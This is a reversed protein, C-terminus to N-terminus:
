ARPGARRTELRHMFQDYHRFCSSKLQPLSRQAAKATKWGFLPQMWAYKQRLQPEELKGQLETALDRAEAILDPREPYFADYWNQIFTVCAARARESDDMSRLCRIHSKISRLLAEKKRDSNGIYSVRSSPTIRYFVGTGPVFRTGNSAKLVRCFYEGDDDFCLTTDFSGAAEILERSALWTAPQMHLNLSMKRVLWEAPALDECLANQVFRAKRTRFFFPAWSTSLLKWKDEAGDVTALQREIKDPALIDDAALIQVYDGSCTEIALNQAAAVGHNKGASVVQVGASAFGRAVPATADTSGDDVVIIEKHQWTQAVASQISEAIWREANYAPILISVLPKM